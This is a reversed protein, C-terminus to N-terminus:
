RAPHPRDSAWLTELDHAWVTAPDRSVDDCERLGSERCREIGAVQKCPLRAANFRKLSAGWGKLEDSADVIESSIRHRDVLNTAGGIAAVRKERALQERLDVVDADISCMIASIAPVAYAKDLAKAHLQAAAEAKQRDEAEIRARVEERKADRAAQAEVEQRLKQEKERQWEAKRAAEQREYDARAAERAPRDREEEFAHYASAREAETPYCAKERDPMVSCYPGGGPTGPEASPFLGACGGLVVVIGVVLLQRM